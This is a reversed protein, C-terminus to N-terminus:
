REFERADIPTLNGFSAAQLVLHLNEASPPVQIEPGRYYGVVGGRELRILTTLVGHPLQVTTTNHRSLRVRAVVQDAADKIRMMLDNDSENAILTRVPGSGAFLHSWEAEAPDTPRGPGRDPVARAGAGGAAPIQAVVNDRKEFRPGNAAATISVSRGGIFLTSSVEARPFLLVFDTNQRSPVDAVLTTGTTKIVWPRTPKISTLVASAGVRTRDPLDLYIRSLQLPVGITEDTANQVTLLVAQTGNPLGHCDVPEVDARAGAALESEDSAITYSRPHRLRVYSFACADSSVLVKADL